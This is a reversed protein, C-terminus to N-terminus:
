FVVEQPRPSHRVAPGEGKPECAGSTKNVLLIAIRYVAAIIAPRFHIRKYTGYPNAQAWEFLVKAHGDLMAM